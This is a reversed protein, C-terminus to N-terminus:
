YSPCGYEGAFSIFVSGGMMSSEVSDDELIKKSVVEDRVVKRSVIVVRSARIVVRNM